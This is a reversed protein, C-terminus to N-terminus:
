GSFCRMSAQHMLALTANSLTDRWSYVSRDRKWWYWAEWGITLVFVPAFALLILGPDFAEPAPTQPTM